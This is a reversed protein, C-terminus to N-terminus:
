SGLVTDAPWSVLKGPLGKGRPAIAQEVNRHRVCSIIVAFNYTFIAELLAMGM